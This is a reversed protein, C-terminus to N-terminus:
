VDINGARLANSEIFARRPEVEDGMLTTFIGDAAIADEIQVRLLRRVAPDMTTEWLQEPNMEGLGKYRQKSVNREADAILWRMAAKFGTVAMEREGRKIVAGTGILDRFTDATNRLQQYDASILFEEDLVTVKINGHHRREIRLARVERVEDFVVHVNVEPKLPDTQLSALIADASTQAAAESSLDIHVGDMIAELVSPEILRSLRDVVAESLLYSRALEGLADGTIPAAGESPTLAAGQLALKLMHQNLEHTDKLYREDKGAKIKYLPPQAIYVYGNDILEPMQRYFFTLLLTRIHAGDVDADTMIIIRHYRLKEPKYDEKGIGCGLATILTVIQESQLLKDYRAKEVNLVKGRLPLIAQFKRDRGQKASGGASDGEVIYIESKAPDKEQCDALKGPLGGGDLV